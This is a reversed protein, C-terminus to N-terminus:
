KQQTLKSQDIHFPQKSSPHYHLCYVAIIITYYCYCYCYYYCTQFSNLSPSSSFFSNSASVITDNSKITPGLIVIDGAKMDMKDLGLSIRCSSSNQSLVHNPALTPYSLSGSKQRSKDDPRHGTSRRGETERSMERCENARISCVCVGCRCVSFLDPLRSGNKCVM